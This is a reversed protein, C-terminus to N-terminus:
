RTKVRGAAAIWDRVFPKRALLYVGGRERATEGQVDDKCQKCRGDMILIDCQMLNVRALM